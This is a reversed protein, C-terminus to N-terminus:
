RQSREALLRDVDKLRNLVLQKDEESLEGDPTWQLCTRTLCTRTRSAETRSM